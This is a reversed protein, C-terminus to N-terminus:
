IRDVLVMETASKDGPKLRIPRRAGKVKKGNGPRVWPLAKIREIEDAESARASPMLSILRAVPRGRDTIMVDKGARVLKLYKSLCNKMERISVEMLQDRQLSMLFM